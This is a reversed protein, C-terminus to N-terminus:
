INHLMSYFSNEAVIIHDLLEIGLFKSIKLLKKTFIIDQKTPKPNGSPHNHVLIIAHASEQFAKRFIEAPEILLCSSNGKYLTEMKILNSAQDLFLIRLEEQTAHQLDKALEVVDEPSSIKYKEKEKRSIRSALEFLAILQCAKAEKIGSIEKLRNVGLLSLQKLTYKALLRQCLQIVNEQKNGTRLILALLEADTLNRAGFKLLKERPRDAAPIQKVTLM